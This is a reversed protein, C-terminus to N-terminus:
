DVIPRFIGIRWDLDIDIRLVEAIFDANFNGIFADADRFGIPVSDELPEVANIFGMRSFYASWTKAKRDNFRDDFLMEACDVEFRSHTFTGREDNVEWFREPYLKKVTKM